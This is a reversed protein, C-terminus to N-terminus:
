RLHELAVRACVDPREGILLHGCDAIVRLPARLRRAYEFGDEIPVQRDRGGFLVVAPCRVRDLNQRPDDAALARAAAYVDAHMTPGRLFGHVARETLLQPNSVEIGGFVFRKLRPSRAVRHARWGAIRGPKTVAAVGLFMEGLRTSSSIGAPAALVLGAVLDPRREALRLAVVAGMSHGVVGASGDLLGAVVDAYPTLSRAAPLPDSGAHGPLDPIVLPRGELLPAMESWNWAAGGFGHLLLLPLGEGARRFVRIRLGRVTEIGEDLGSLLDTADTM